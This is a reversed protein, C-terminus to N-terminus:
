YLKELELVRNSMLAFQKTRILFRSPALFMKRKSRERFKYLMTGGGGAMHIYNKRKRLPGVVNPLVFARGLGGIQM